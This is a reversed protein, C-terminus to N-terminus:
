GITKSYFSKKEVCQIKQEFSIISIGLFFLYVSPGVYGTSRIFLSGIFCATMCHGLLLLSNDSGTLTAPRRVLYLGSKVTKSFLFLVTLGGLLGLEVILDAALFGLDELNKNGGNIMYIQDSISGLVSSQSNSLGLGFFPGHWIANWLVEWGQLYVLTTLNSDNIDLRSSFYDLQNYALLSYAGLFLCTVWFVGKLSQANHVIQLCVTAVLFVIAILSGVYIGIFVLFFLMLLRDIKNGKIFLFLIFPAIAAMLHSPETDFFSAKPYKPYISYGSAATHQLVLFLIIVVLMVRIVPQIQLRNCSGLFRSHLQAVFAMIVLFLIMAFTKLQFSFALLYWGYIMSLCLLSIRLRFVSPVTSISSLGIALLALAFGPALSLDTLARFLGPLVLLAMFGTAVSITKNNLTM